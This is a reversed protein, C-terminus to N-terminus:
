NTLNIDKSDFNYGGFLGLGNEINSPIVIAQSLISDRQSLQRSLAFHYQHYANSTNRLEVVLQPPYPSLNEAFNVELEAQLQHQGARIDSGKLLAGNEFDTIYPINTNLKQLSPIQTNVYYFTDREETEFFLYRFYFVLHYDQGILDNHNFDFAVDVEFINEARPDSKKAFRDLELESLNVRPPIATMATIPTEGPVEVNLFYTDLQDEGIREESLFYPHNPLNPNLTDKTPREFQLPFEMGTNTNSLSVDATEIYTIPERSLIPQAYSLSVTLPRTPAIESIVVVQSDFDVGLDVVEECGTLAICLFLATYLRLSM